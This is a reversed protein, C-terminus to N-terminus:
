LPVALYSLPLAFRERLQELYARDDEDLEQRGVIFLETPHPHKRTPHYAYELIQGLALRIVTSPRLDSKIEYLQFVDQTRVTVDVFGDECHIEAGPYRERLMEVLKVQMRAHEPTIMTAQSGKKAYPQTSPLNLATHGRRLLQKSAEPQQAGFDYLQYRNFRRIWDGPEFDDEHDHRTVNDLRYRLNLVHKAWDWRGLASVDGGAAVIEREMQAYWGRQKFVSLADEAQQTDLCEVNCITAVYRRAKAADITFLTVDFTEAERVLRDHSRNVGQLFAYRWGHILWDSRFLWDEHGFGFNQNYTDGTEQDRADSTPHQWGSGNYSIRTLYHM